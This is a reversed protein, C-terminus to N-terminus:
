KRQAPNQQYTHEARYEKGCAVHNMRLLAQINIKNKKSGGNWGGKMSSKKEKSGGNWGGKM